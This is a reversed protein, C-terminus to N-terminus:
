GSGRALVNSEHTEDACFDFSLAIAYSYRSVGGIFGTMARWLAPWGPSVFAIGSIRSKAPEVQTARVVAPWSLTHSHSAFRSMHSKGTMLRLHSTRYVSLVRIFYDGPRSFRDGKMTSMGRM